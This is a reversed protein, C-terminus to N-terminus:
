TQVFISDIIQILERTTATQAVITHSEQNKVTKGDIKRIKKPKRDIKGSNHFKLTDLHVLVGLAKIQYTMRLKRFKGTEHQNKRIKEPIKRFKRPRGMWAHEQPRSPGSSVGYPTGPDIRDLHVHERLM